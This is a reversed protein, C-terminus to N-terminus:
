EHNALVPEVLKTQSSLPISVTLICGQGPASQVKMQGNYYGVRNRINRLGIGPIRKEPNFGIGDDQITLELNDTKRLRITAKKAKAHKIINNLQVQVIRYCTLKLSDDAIDGLWGETDLTLQLSTTSPLNDILKYLAQDLGMGGLTPAVLSQSLQRIEEMAFNLNRYGKQLIDKQEHEGIEKLVVDLYLKTAALIQNINDHLEKGIEEREREQVQISTQTILKQQIDAQRALEAEARLKETIDNALILIVPEQEHVMDHSIVEVDITAGDKKQHKWIGSLYLGPSGGNWLRGTNMSLFEERTYGYHTIAAENVAIISLSKQSVMWMPMPNKEFLLKYKQESSRLAEDAQRRENEMRGKDLANQIANPLRELRDKLIYDSAGEKIVSVAYEESVTATVLIFPTDVAEERSIRLAESSNFSPLSHDSLIVDPQFERLQRVFGERDIVVRKEFNFKAKRLVRDVMEADAELDELHLIKLSQNM